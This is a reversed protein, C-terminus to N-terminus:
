KLKCVIKIHIHGATISDLNSIIISGYINGLATKCCAITNSDTLATTTGPVGCVANVTAGASGSVQAEMAILTRVSGEMNLIFGFTDTGM